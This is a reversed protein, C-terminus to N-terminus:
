YEPPPVLFIHTAIPPPTYNTSGSSGRSNNNPAFPFPKQSGIPNACKRQIRVTHQSSTQPQYLVKTYGANSFMAKFTTRSLPTRNNNCPLIHPIYKEFDNTNTTCDNAAPKKNFIYGNVLIIHYIQMQNSGYMLINVM